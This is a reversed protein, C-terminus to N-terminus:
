QAGRNEHLLFATTTTAPRAHLGCETKVRGRWRGSRLDEGPAVPSTCPVCGISPYGQEHLPNTPVGHERVYAEVDQASWAVLPNVKVLGFTPDREVVRSTARALTQDRRISTIWADKGRLADQLPAVKRLACCQDPDTEWLRAGYRDAQQELTVAPRVLQIAVGYKAELERWLAYTEPFLVGTDLAIIRIPLRHRAILDVLVCGEAGFGTAFVIGSGFQGAGWALIEAPSRGELREAERAIDTATWADVPV